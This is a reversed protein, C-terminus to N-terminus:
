QNCKVRHIETRIRSRESMERSSFDLSFILPPEYSFRLPPGPPSPFLSISTIDRHSIGFVSFGAAAAATDSLADDAVSAAAWHPFNVVDVRSSPYRTVAVRNTHWCRASRSTVRFVHPERM